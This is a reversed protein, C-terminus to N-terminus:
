RIVKELAEWDSKRVPQKPSISFIVNANNTSSLGTVRYIMPETRKFQFRRKGELIFREGADAQLKVNLYKGDKIFEYHPHDNEVLMSPLVELEKKNPNHSGSKKPRYCATVDFYDQFDGTPFVIFEGSDVYERTMFFMCKKYNAYYDIIRDYYLQKDLGLEDSSPVKHKDFNESMAKLIAASAESPKSPHNRESYTFTRTKEDAFAVFQGCQAYPEKVEINCVVEGEKRVVIDPSKSDTGGNVVFVCGTASYKDQLYRACSNEFEIFDM